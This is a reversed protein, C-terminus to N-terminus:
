KFNEKICYNARIILLFNININFLIKMEEIIKNEQSFLKNLITMNFNQLKTVNLM